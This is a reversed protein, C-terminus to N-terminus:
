RGEKKSAEIFRPIESPDHSGDAYLTVIYDAGINLAESLLKSMTMSYGMAVENRIVKVGLAEAIERTSDDSADDCVLVDSVYKTTKIITGAIRAEENYAPICAIVVPESSGVVIEGPQGGEEVESGTDM